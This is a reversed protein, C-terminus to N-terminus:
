LGFRPAAIDRTSIIRIKTQTPIIFRKVLSSSSSLMTVNHSFEVTNEGDKDKNKQINGHDYQGHRGEVLPGVHRNELAEGKVLVRLQEAVARKQLQQAIGQEDGHQGAQDGGHEAGHGREADM